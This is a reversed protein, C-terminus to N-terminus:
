HEVVCALVLSMEETIFKIMSWTDAYKQPLHDTNHTTCFHSTNPRVHFLGLVYKTFVLLMAEDINLSHLPLFCTVTVFPQLFGTSLFSQCIIGLCSAQM